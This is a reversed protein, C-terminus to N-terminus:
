PFLFLVMRKEVHEKIAQQISDAVQAKTACNKKSVEVGPWDNRLGYFDFFTSIHAGTYQTAYSSVESVFAEITRAGGRQTGRSGIVPFIINFNKKFFHETLLPALAASETQGEVIIVLNPKFM